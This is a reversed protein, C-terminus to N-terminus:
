CDPCGNGPICPCGSGAAFSSGTTSYRVHGIAMEGELSRLTHEDFVQAVLGQDRIALINGGRAATAFGAAGGGGRGAAM